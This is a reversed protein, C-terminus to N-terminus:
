CLDEGAETDESKPRILLRYGPEEKTFCIDTNVVEFLRQRDTSNETINDHWSVEYEIVKDETDVLSISVIDPYDFFHTKVTALLQETSNQGAFNVALLHDYHYKPDFLEKTFHIDVYNMLHTVSFDSNAQPQSVIREYDYFTFSEVVKGDLWLSEVNEFHLGLYKLSKEQQLVKNNYGTFISDTM